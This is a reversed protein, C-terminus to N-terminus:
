CKRSTIHLIRPMNHVPLCYYSIWKSLLIGYLGWSFCSVFQEVFNVPFDAL